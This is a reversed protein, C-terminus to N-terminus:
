LPLLGGRKPLFQDNPLKVFYNRYQLKGGKTKEIFKQLSLSVGAKRDCSKGILYQIGASKDQDYRFRGDLYTKIGSAKRKSQNRVAKGLRTLSNITRLQIHKRWFSVHDFELIEDFTSLGKGRVTDAKSVRWEIHCTRLGNVKSPLESYTVLKNAQWKKRSSYSTGKFRYLKDKGPWLKILHTELFETVTERNTITETILDLAIAVHNIMYGTKAFSKIYEFTEITPQHLTHTFCYHENYPMPEQQWPMYPDGVCLSEITDIEHPELNRTYWVSVSDIYSIRDTILSAVLDLRRTSEELIPLM